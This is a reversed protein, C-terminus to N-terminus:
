HPHIAAGIFLSALFAFVYAQILAVLIELLSILVSAIISAPMVGILLWQGWTVGIFAIFVALVLHGAFMNAFLRVALVLHKIFLGFVEIAWIAPVLTYQMAPPLEMHPAQAKWFGVVGLRKMGAGLVICFTILALAATCGLAGTATGMFPIMGFLNLTLVFFFITWIFPLYRNADKTGIAPRVIDDRVFVIMAELFNSFRGKPREGNKIKNAFRIFVVAILVAGIVELVMFKTPRFTIPSVFDNEPVAIAPNEDTFGLPNPIHVKITDKYKLNPAPFEFYHTDQVHHILDNPDLYVDMPSAAEGHEGGHDDGHEEGAHHEENGNEDDGHEEDNGSEGSTETAPDDNESGDDQTGTNAVSLLPSESSSEENATDHSPIRNEPHSM